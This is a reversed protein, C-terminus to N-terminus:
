NEMLTMHSNSRHASQTTGAPWCKHEGQKTNPSSIKRDLRVDKSQQKNEATYKGYEFKSYVNQNFDPTRTHTRADLQDPTPSKVVILFSLIIIRAVLTCLVQVLLQGRTLPTLQTEGTGEWGHSDRQCFCSWCTEFGLWAGEKERQRPYRTNQHSFADGVGLSDEARLEVAGACFFYPFIKGWSGEVPLDSTLRPQLAISICKSIKSPSMPLHWHARISQVLQLSLSLRCYAIVSATWIYLSKLAPRHPIYVYLYYFLM